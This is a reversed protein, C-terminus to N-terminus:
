RTGRGLTSIKLPMYAPCVGVFSTALFVLAIVGLIIAWTGSIAHTFYLVGVALALLLRVGRDVTGMNKTM